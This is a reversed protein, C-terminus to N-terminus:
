RPATSLRTRVSGGGGARSDIVIAGIDIVSLPTHISQLAQRFSIENPAM